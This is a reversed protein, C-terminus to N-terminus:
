LQGEESKRATNSPQVTWRHAVHAWTTLARRREETVASPHQVEEVAHKLHHLADEIIVCWDLLGSRDLGFPASLPRDCTQGCTPCRSDTEEQVHPHPPPQYNDTPNHIM